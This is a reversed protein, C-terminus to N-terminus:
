GHHAMARTQMIKTADALDAATNINMFAREDEFNCPSFDCMEALQHLSPSETETRASVHRLITEPSWLGCTPHLQNSTQALCTPGRALMCAAYDHPIFPMDTAVTLFANQNEFHKALAYLGAAPGRLPGAHDPVCQLGTGYDQAGSIILTVSQRALRAVLHDILRMGHLIAEAKDEAGFRQSRGGALIAIPTSSM